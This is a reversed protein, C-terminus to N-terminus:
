DKISQELNKWENKLTLLSTLFFTRLKFDNETLQENNGSAEGGVASFIFGLSFSTIFIGLISEAVSLLRIYTDTATISGSGVTSLAGLSIYIHDLFISFNFTSPKVVGSFLNNVAQYNLLYYLGGFTIGLSLYISFTMVIDLMQVKRKKFVVLSFERFICTSILLICLCMILIHLVKTIFEEIKYFSLYNNFIGFLPILFIFYLIIFMTIFSHQVLFKIFRIRMFFILPYIILFYSSFLILFILFFRQTEIEKLSIGITFISFFISFFLSMNRIQRNNMNNFFALVHKM